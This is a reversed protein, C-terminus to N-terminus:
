ENEYERWPISYRFMRGSKQRALVKKQWLSSLRNNWGSISLVPDFESMDTATISGLELIRSMALQDTEELPGVLHAEGFSGGSFRGVWIPNRMVTAVLELDDSADPPLNAVLPFQEVRNREWLAWPGGFFFSPTVAEAGDFDLVVLPNIGALAEVADRLCEGKRRSALICAGQSLELLRVHAQRNPRERAAGYNM